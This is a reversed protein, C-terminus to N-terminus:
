SICCCGHSNTEEEEEIPQKLKLLPPDGSALTFYITNGNSSVVPMCHDEYSNQAKKAAMSGNNIHGNLIPHSLLKAAARQKKLESLTQARNRTWSDKSTTLSAEPTLSNRNSTSSARICTKTSVSYTQQDGDKLIHNARHWKVSKVRYNREASSLKKSFYAIPKLQGAKGRHQSLVAGVGM